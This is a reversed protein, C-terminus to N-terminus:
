IAVTGHAHVHYDKPDAHFLGEDDMFVPRRVTESQEHTLIMRLEEIVATNGREIAWAMPTSGTRDCPASLDVGVEKLLKILNVHGYYAVYFAPTYGKSDVHKLNAGNAVLQRVWPENNMRLAGRLHGAETEEHRTHSLKHKSAGGGM